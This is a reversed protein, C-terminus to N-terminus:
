GAYGVACGYPRTSAVAVPRNAALDELAARVFNRSSTVVKPNTTAKDDIAGAYVVNGSTGIVFMHPTTRAGYRRGLEGTDDLLLVSAAAKRQSNFAKAGEAALYDRRSPHTSLVSLWVVGHSTAWQQLAQMRGSDYQAAVFPCSPSTWELVVVKNAFDSLTRHRGETDRVNIEPARAGVSAPASDPAPWAKTAAVAAGLMAIRALLRRRAVCVNSSTSIGDTENSDM